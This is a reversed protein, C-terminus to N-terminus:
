ILEVSSHISRLFNAECELANTILSNPSFYYILINEAEINKFILFVYGKKNEICVKGQMIMRLTLTTPITPDVDVTNNQETAM